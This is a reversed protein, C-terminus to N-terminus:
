LLTSIGCVDVGLKVAEISEFSALHGTVPTYLPFGVWPSAIGDDILQLGKLGEPAMALIFGTLHSVEIFTENGQSIYGLSVPESDSDASIFRVGTIYGYDGGGVLSIAVRTMDCPVLAEYKRYCRCGHEFWAYDDPFLPEYEFQGNVSVWGAEPTRIIKEPGRLADELSLIQSLQQVLPWIRRRNRLGPSCQSSGTARYLELWDRPEHRDRVEFFFDREGWPRFKSAWFTQSNFLALFASSTRRLNLADSTPLYIAIKERLEWPLIWFNDRPQPKKIVGPSSFSTSEQIGELKPINLPDYSAELDKKSGDRPPSKRVYWPVWPIECEYLGNYAHGWFLHNDEYFLSECIEKLRPLPLERSQFVKCLLNWCSAHFIVGHVGNKPSQGM